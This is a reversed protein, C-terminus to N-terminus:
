VIKGTKELEIIHAAVKKINDLCEARNKYGETSAAVTDSSMMIRWRYEKKEDIYINLRPQRASYAEVLSNVGTPNFPFNKNM